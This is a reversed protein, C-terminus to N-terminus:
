LLTQAHAKAGPVEYFKIKTLEPPILFKKGLEPPILFQCITSRKQNLNELNPRKGFVSLQMMM